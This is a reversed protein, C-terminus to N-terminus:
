ARVEVLTAEVHHETRLGDRRLPDGDVRYEVDDIVLVDGATIAAEPMFFARFTTSVTERDLTQEKSQSMELRCPYPGRDSSSYTTNGYADFGNADYTRVTAARNLLHRM